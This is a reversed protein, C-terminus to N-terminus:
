ASTNAAAPRAADVLDAPEWQLRTRSTVIRGAANLVYVEIQHRNVVTGVFNVGLQFYDQVIQSGKTVRFIRNDEDFKFGRIQGYAKLRQPLDFEPDYTIAAVRISGQIGRNWLEKQLEALKTITLSCKQPNDCRTYFFAVVSPRGQTFEEFRLSVADQDQLIVGAPSEATSQRPPPRLSCCSTKRGVSAPASIRNRVANILPLLSDPFRHKVNTLLENVFPLASHAAPGMWELTTFLEQLATTPKLQSARGCYDFSVADDAAAINAIAKLLLPAFDETPNPLARVARAAAAVTYAQMGTQLEEAVFPVAADPLGTREFALLIQCRMRAVQNASRGFFLPHREDLLRVLAEREEPHESVWCVFEALTRESTRQDFTEAVNSTM